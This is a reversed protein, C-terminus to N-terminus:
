GCRRLATMVMAAAFARDAASLDGLRDRAEDLTKGREIAALMAAAHRRAASKGRGGSTARPPTNQASKEMPKNSWEPFRSALAWIREM